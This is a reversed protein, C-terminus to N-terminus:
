WGEKPPMGKDGKKKDKSPNLFKQLRGLAAEDLDISIKASGSPFM